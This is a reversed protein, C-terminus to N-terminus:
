SFLDQGGSNITKLPAEIVNQMQKLFAKAMMPDFLSQL